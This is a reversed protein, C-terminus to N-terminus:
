FALKVGGVGDWGQASGGTIGVTRGVDLYTTLRGMTANVGGGVRVGGGLGATSFAANSLQVKGNGMLDDSVDVSVFPSLRMPMPGDVDYNRLTRVGVRGLVSQTNHDHFSVGDVDTFDDFGLSQYTVSARPEVIVGLGVAIPYGAEVSGTLGVGKTGGENGRQETSVHADYYLNALAVADVYWGRASQYTTTAGVSTAAFSFKARNANIVVDSGGRSLIGDVRLVDGPAVVSPTAVGLGVQMFWLNQDFSPRGDDGAFGGTWGKVRVFTEGQTHTPVPQDYTEGARRHLDDALGAGYMLGATPLAQYALVQPVVVPASGSQLRYDYVSTIGLAALRPDVESAASQGQPFAILHYQYPGVAVYGGQLVFSNANATGGVQIISIGSTNSTGTYAGTGGAIPQVVVTTTGVANGAILLRDTVQNGPGGANLLTRVTVTGDPDTYNGRILLEGLAVSTGPSINGSSQVNGTVTGSGSLTAGSAVTTPSNISGDVELNGASVTTRGTYTNIGSLTLTGFGAKTLGGPGSIVGTLANNHGNTDFINISGANSTGLVVSRASSFSTGFQLTGNNLVLNGTTAGLSADATVNVVAGGTILTGGSYTNAGSLVLVAHNGSNSITLLGGTGATVDSIPNSIIGNVGALDITGGNPSITFSYSTLPTGDLRLTGGDFEASLTGAALGAASFTGNTINTLGGTILLNYNNGNAVLSFAYNGFVGSTNTLQNAAFGELVNAYTGDAVISGPAIAFSTAGTAGGVIGFIGYSTPSAISILYNTPLPGTITLPTNGGQLNTLNTINTNQISYFGNIYNLISGSNILNTVTGGTIGSIGGEINGSNNLNVITGFNAIGQPTQSGNGITGTNTLNTINGSNQIAAQFGFNITGANNITATGSVFVNTCTQGVGVVIAQGSCTQALSGQSSLMLVSMALLAAGASRILFGRIM